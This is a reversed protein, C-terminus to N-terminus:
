SRLRAVLSPAVERLVSNAKANGLLRCPAGLAKVDRELLAEQEEFHRKRFGRADAWDTQRARWLSWARLLLLSRVPEERTEGYDRPTVQKSMLWAGMGHPLPEKFQHRMFVKMFEGESDWIFFYDDSWLPELVRRRPVPAAAGGTAAEPASPTKMLTKAKDAFLSDDSSLSSAL